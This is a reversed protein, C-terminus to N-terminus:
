TSSSIKSAADVIHLIDHAYREVWTAPNHTLIVNAHALDLGVWERTDKRNWSPKYYGWGCYNEVHWDLYDPDLIDWGTRANCVATIFYAEREYKVRWPAPLPALFVLFLLCLWAWPTWVAGIAGLSLIALPAPFLYKLGWLLGGERKAQDLHVGEHALTEWGIAPYFDDPVWMRGAFTTVFGSMFRRNWLWMFSVIYLTWMLVSSRKRVVKVELGHSWLHALIGDYITM